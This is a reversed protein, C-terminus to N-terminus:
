GIAFGRVRRSRILAPTKRGLASTYPEFPLAATHRLGPIMTNAGSTVPALLATGLAEMLIIEANTVGGDDDNFQLIESGSLMIRGRRRYNDSGTYLTVVRCLAAPEETGTVLGPEDIHQIGPRKNAGSISFLKVGMLSYTDLHRSLWTTGHLSEWALALTYLIDAESAAQATIKYHMVNVINQDQYRGHIQVGIEDNEAM